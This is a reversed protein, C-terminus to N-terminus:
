AESQEKDKFIVSKILAPFILSFIGLCFWVVSVEFGFVPKSFIFYILFGLIAYKIVIISTSLAILKKSFVLKWMVTLACLNALMILTGLLYSISNQQTDYYWLFSSMILAIILYLSIVLKM